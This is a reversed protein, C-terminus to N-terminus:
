RLGKLSKRSVGFEASPAREGSLASKPRMAAGESDGFRAALASGDHRTRHRIWKAYTTFLMQATRHGLMRSVWQPSEGAELANSAFSHRTQYITRRRLGADRLARQWVNRRVAREDFSAGRPGTWVYDSGEVPAGLGYRLRHEAQQARQAEFAAIVPPLMDVDRISARTKPTSEVGRYRGARIRFSRRATDVDGWKLAALEGPRAGTWFMVTLLPRWWPACAAIVATVEPPSLPDIDPDPAALPKVDPIWSTDGGFRRKGSRLISKGVFLCLNTRRASLGHDSCRTLFRRLDGEDVLSVRMPGFFPVLHLRIAQEYAVRTGHKWGGRREETWVAAFDTFTPAHRRDLVPEGRDRRGLVTREYQVAEERTVAKLTEKRQAGDADRWRVQYGTRTKRIM